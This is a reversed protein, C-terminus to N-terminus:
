LKETGIHAINRHIARLLGGGAEKRRRMVPDMFFLTGEVAPLLGAIGGFLVALFSLFGRRPTAQGHPAAAPPDTSPNAM